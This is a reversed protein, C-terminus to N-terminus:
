EAFPPVIHVRRALFQKWADVSEASTDFVKWRSVLRRHNKDRKNDESTLSVRANILRSCIWGEGEGRSDWRVKKKIRESRGQENVIEDAFRPRDRSVVKVKWKMMGEVHMFHIVLRRSRLPSSSAHVYTRSYVRHIVLDPFILIMWLKLLQICISRM